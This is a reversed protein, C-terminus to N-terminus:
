ARYILYQLTSTRFASPSLALRLAMMSRLTFAAMSRHLIRETTPDSGLREYITTGTGPYEDLATNTGARLADTTRAFAPYFIHQWSLLIHRWSDEGGSGLLNEAVSSNVYSAGSKGVLETSCLALMLVRLKHPALGTVSALDAFTSGGTASLREFVGLESASVIANFLAPGNVILQFREYLRKETDDSM